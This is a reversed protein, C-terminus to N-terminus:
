RQSGVPVAIPEVVAVRGAVRVIRVRSHRAIARGTASRAGLNITEAGDQYAVEGVGGAPIDIVVRAERGDADIALEVDEALRRSPIYIFIFAAVAGAVLGTGLAWWLSTLPAVDFVLLALLGVGGAVALGLGLSYSTARGFRPGPTGSAAQSGPTFSRLLSVVALVILLLGIALAGGYVALLVSRSLFGLM